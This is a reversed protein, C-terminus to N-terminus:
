VVARPFGLRWLRTGLSLIFFLLQVTDIEFQVSFPRSQRTKDIRRGEDLSSPRSLMSNQLLKQSEFNASCKLYICPLM